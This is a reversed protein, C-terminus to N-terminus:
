ADGGVVDGSEAQDQGVAFNNMDAGLLAIGRREIKGSQEDSRFARERQDGFDGDLERALGFGDLSQESDKVGDIVGGFRNGFDGSATDGRGGAFHHVAPCEAGDLFVNVCPKGGIGGSNEEDFDLAQVFGDDQLGRRDVLDTTQVVGPFYANSLIGLLAFEEPLAALVGEASEATDSGAVVNEVADNGAALKRLGKAMDLLQALFVAAEDAVDEMCAVAVKVGDNEKVRAIFGLELASHFNGRFDDAIAHLDTAAEGAFVADAHFFALQHRQEEGIRIESEHATNM